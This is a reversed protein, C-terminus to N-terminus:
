ETVPRIGLVGVRAGPQRAAGALAAALTFRAATGDVATLKPARPAWALSAATAAVARTVQATYSPTVYRVLDDATHQHALEEVTDIFRVGPMKATISPQHDGGRGM